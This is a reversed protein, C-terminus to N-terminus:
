NRQAHLTLFDSDQTVVVRQHQTALALQAKDSAGLLGAQPTSWMDIGRRQLGIIVASSIHEDAQYRIDNSM